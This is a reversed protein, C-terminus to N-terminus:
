GEVLPALDAAIAEVDHPAQFYGALRAEPDVLVLATSHDVTYDGGAGPNRV